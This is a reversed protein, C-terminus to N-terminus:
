PGAGGRRADTRRGPPMLVSEMAASIKNPPMGERTRFDFGHPSARIESCRSTRFGFWCTCAIGGSGQLRTRSAFWGQERIGPLGDQTSLHVSCPSLTGPLKTLEENWRPSTRRAMAALRQQSRMQGSSVLRAEAAEAPLLAPAGEGVLMEKRAASLVRRVAEYSTHYRREIQRLSEGQAVRRAVQPWESRPIKFLPIPPNIHRPKHPLFTSM